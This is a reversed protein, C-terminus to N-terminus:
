LLKDAFTNVSVTCMTSHVYVGIFMFSGHSHSCQHSIQTFTFYFLGSLATLSMVPDTKHHKLM